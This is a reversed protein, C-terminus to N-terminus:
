WNPYLWDMVEKYHKAEVWWTYNPYDSRGYAPIGFPYFLNLDKGPSSFNLPSIIRGRYTKVGFSVYAKTEIEGIKLNFPRDVYFGQGSGDSIDEFKFYFIDYPNITGDGNNYAHKMARFLHNGVKDDNKPNYKIKPFDKWIDQQVDPNYSALMFQADKQEMKRKVKMYEKYEKTEYIIKDLLSVTRWGYQLDEWITNDGDFIHDWGSESNYSVPGMTYGFQDYLPNYSFPGFSFNGTLTPLITSGVAMVGGFVTSPATWIPMIMAGGIIVGEGFNRSWDKFSYNGYDSHGKSPRNFEAWLIGSGIIFMAM